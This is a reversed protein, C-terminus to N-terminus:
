GVLPQSRWKRAAPSQRITEPNSRKPSNKTAWPVAPTVYASFFGHRQINRWDISVEPRPYREGSEFCLVEEGDQRHCHHHIDKASEEVPLHKAQGHVHHELIDDRNRAHRSQHQELVSLLLPIQQVPYPEVGPGM